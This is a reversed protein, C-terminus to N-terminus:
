GGRYEMQFAVHRSGLSWVKGDLHWVKALSIAPM